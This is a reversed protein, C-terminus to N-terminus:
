VSVEVGKLIKKERREDKEVYYETKYSFKNVEGDIYKVGMNLNKRRLARVLQWPDFWGEGEMGPFIHLYVHIIKNETFPFLQYDKISENIGAEFM